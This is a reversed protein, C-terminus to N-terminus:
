WGGTWRENLRPAGPRDSARWRRVQSICYLLTLQVIGHLDRHFTARYGQTLEELNPVLEQVLRRVESADIVGQVDLSHFTLDGVPQDAV